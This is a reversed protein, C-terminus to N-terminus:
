YREKKTENYYKFLELCKDRDICEMYNNLKNRGKFIKDFKDDRFGIADTDSITAGYYIKSINSWLSACLCMHCPEATTYLICGSLNYTKLKKAAKRIADIEGHCTPDNNSLVHNHGKAIVKNNKVIVAGFPGGHNHKIGSYAEEIAIKMYKNM